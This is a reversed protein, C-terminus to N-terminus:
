ICVLHLVDCEVTDHHTCGRGPKDWVFPADSSLSVRSLRLGAGIACHSFSPLVCVPYFVLWFNVRPRIFEFNVVFSGLEKNKRPDDLNRWIEKMSIRVYKEKPKIRRSMGFKMVGQVGKYGGTCAGGGGGGGGM